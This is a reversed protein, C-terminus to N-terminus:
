TTGQLRNSVGDDQHRQGGPHHRHFGALSVLPPVQVPQLVAPPQVPLVRVYRCPVTVTLLRHM